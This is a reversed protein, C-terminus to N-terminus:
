IICQTQLVVESHEAFWLTLMINVNSSLNFFSGNLLAISLGTGVAALIIVPKRLINEM